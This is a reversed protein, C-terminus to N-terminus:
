PARASLALVGLTVVVWGAITALLHRDMLIDRAPDNGGEEGHLLYLYRFVGYVVFPVTAILQDTHHQAVTEPSVTYVSYSLIACAASISMFKDIMVPSYHELATRTPLRTEGGSSDMALLEARRKAFGLFLTLMMGCLLLWSSPPIGLGVTGTLIRLMFGASICFVDIVVIHKWRLSYGLNLLLYALVFVFAGLGVLAALVFAVGAFAGAVTSAQRISIAGSAVPRGCKTPHRRDAERDLLDNVVYAASAIACFALFALGARAVTPADWRAGFMVGILVFGNKVYQGPRVLRIIPNVM